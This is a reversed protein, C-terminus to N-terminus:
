TKRAPSIKPLELVFRTNEAGLDLYLRGGHAEAITKSLSLGLGTGMGVEKTTFFPQMLKERIHAPIKPGSNTVSIEILNNREIANILIWKENLSSIADCANNILNLLVQSIQVARCEL